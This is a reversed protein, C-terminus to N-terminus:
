AKGRGMGVKEALRGGPVHILINDILRARGLRAAVAILTRGSLTPRDELTEPDVMALYEIEIATGERIMESMRGRLREPDREGGVLIERQAFRLAKYLRAAQPREEETLYANRSSMALGDKERVTPAAVIKVDVNLEDVMKQLVVLQQADKEGLYIRHPQVIGLLKLVVTCVGDFHGPRSAGCLREAIPGVTVRTSFGPPYIEEVEPVFAADAGAERARDLDRALDRPYRQFDEGPGFQIPNVFISVVVVDNQGRARRILALHAEHFAGMTPVFGIRKGAERAQRSFRRQSEASQFRKMGEPEPAAKKKATM